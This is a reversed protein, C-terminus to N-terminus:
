SLFNWCHNAVPPEYNEDENLIAFTALM